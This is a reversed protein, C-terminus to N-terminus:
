VITATNWYGMLKKTKNQKKDYYSVEIKAQYWSFM